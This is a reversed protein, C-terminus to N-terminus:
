RRSPDPATLRLTLLLSAPELARLAHPEGAGLHIWDGPGLELEREGVAFAVRGEIGLLTIEGPAAHRPLEAGAQLVLRVVELQPAKLVAQTRADPLTAGFPRLSVVEGSRAHAQAM